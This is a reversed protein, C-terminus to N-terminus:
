CDRTTGPLDHEGVRDVARGCTRAIKRRAWSAEPGPRENEPAADARPHDSRGARVRGFDTTATLAGKVRPTELRETAFRQHPLHCGQVDGARRPGDIGVVTYWPRGRRLGGRAAPGRLGARDRRRHFPNPKTKTM